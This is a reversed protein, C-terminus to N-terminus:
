AVGERFWLGQAIFFDRRFLKNWTYLNRLLPLFEEVTVRQRRVLHVDDVWGPSWTKRSDFREISGCVIESGTERASHVLVDLAGPALMDDSDVFTLYRGKAERIGTNRAAGLGGNERTVVRLRGDKAAYEEAIARSGDPSGDDVLLVEYDRFGQSLISDLCEALYEEVNYFPVIVSVEPRLLRRLQRQERAWGVARSARGRLQQRLRSLGPHTM